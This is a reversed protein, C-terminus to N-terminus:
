EFLTRSITRTMAFYVRKSNNVVSSVSFVSATLIETRETFETTMKKFYGVGFGSHFFGDFVNGYFAFANKHTHVEINRLVLLGTGDGIGLANGGRQRRNLVSQIFPCRDDEHAVKATRITLDNGAKGKLGYSFFKGFKEAFGHLKKGVANSGLNFGGASSKLGAFDYQELVEAEMDLFFAFDFVLVAGRGFGVGFFNGGETGAQCFEAIYKDAIGEACCM